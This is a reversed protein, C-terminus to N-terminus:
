MSGPEGLEFVMVHRVPRSLRGEDDYMDVTIRLASPFLPDAGGSVGPEGPATTYWVAMPYVEDTDEDIFPEFQKGEEGGFVLKSTRLSDLEAYQASDAGYRDIVKAVLREFRQRTVSWDDESLGPAGWDTVGALGGVMDAPDFWLVEGFGRLVPLDLAFEVKFSACHPVGFASLTKALPVPPTLDMESRAYWERPIESDNEDPDRYKISTFYDFYHTPITDPAITPFAVVDQRGERLANYFVEDEDYPQEDDLNFAVAASRTSDNNPNLVPLPAYPDYDM